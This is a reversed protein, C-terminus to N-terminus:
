PRVQYVVIVPKCVTQGGKHANICETHIVRGHYRNAYDLLKDSFFKTRAASFSDWVLYQLDSHRISLDPNHIAEYVPNRHLPNPSVSLGYATRKGYFEIINAMSPGVALIAANEPVHENIWHGAERGRPVGGTGALFTTSSSAASVKVYTAAVLSLICVGVAVVRLRWCAVPRGRLNIRGAPIALLARAALVAVPAAVPLLYQYGKVPWIEFFVMPGAIWCVLLGERWSNTRRLFWLGLLASVLVAWGLASPLVSPYFTWSHNPRRLLQWVLFNGGSRSAGSLSVSAPYVLAVLLFVGTAGLLHRVPTLTRPSLAFFAFVGGFLLIATEKTLVTLGLACAAAYLWYVRGTDLFLVLLYLALTAFFMMPGDLLVQRSVVTTYPMVGVLLAALYGVPRSYILMGVLYVMAVTGLGFAVALLRGALESFGLVRYLVSLMAQFLLPHARFVPFFPVFAPERALSAAQGAYVAEDSNYGVSTLHWVRLLTAPAAVGAFLLCWRGWRAVRPAATAVERVRATAALLPAPLAREGQLLTRLLWVGEANTM